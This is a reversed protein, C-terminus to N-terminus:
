LQVKCLLTGEIDFQTVACKCIYFFHFLLSLFYPSKCSIVSMNLMHKLVYAVIHVVLVHYESLESLPIKLCSIVEDHTPAAVRYKQRQTYFM